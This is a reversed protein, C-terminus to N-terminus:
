CGPGGPLGPSADGRARAMRKPPLSKRLPPAPCVRRPCAKRSQAGTGKLAEALARISSLDSVGQAETVPGRCRVAGRAEAGQLTCCGAGWGCVEGARQAGKEAAASGLWGHRHGGGVILVLTAGRAGPLGLVAVVRGAAADEGGIVLPSPVSRLTPLPRPRGPGRRRRAEGVRRCWPCRGRVLGWGPSAVSGAAGTQQAGTGM